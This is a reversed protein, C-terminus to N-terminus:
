RTSVPTVHYISLRGHIDSVVTKIVEWRQYKAAAMKNENTPSEMIYRYNTKIGKCTSLTQM